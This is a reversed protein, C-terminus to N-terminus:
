RKAGKRTNESIHEQLIETVYGAMTMHNQQAKEKLAKRDEPTLFTYIMTYAM